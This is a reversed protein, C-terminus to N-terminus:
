ILKNPKLFDLFFIKRFEEFWFVVSAVAPLVIWSEWPLVTTHLLKGLYVDSFPLQLEAGQVFLLLLGMSFIVSLNIATNSFAGLQFVSNSSSRCNMVNFLQFIIFVAFAATRAQAFSSEAYGQWAQEDCAVNGYSDFYFVVEGNFPSIFENGDIYAFPKTCTDSTILPGDSVYFIMLTGIVMIAGLYFIIGMDKLDPLGEDTPRPPRDMVAGHRKEVGLAVAPPGDMLINIVLIQTATLPLEWQFVFTSIVILAVAAVNTSIQYRVFNRINNFIKRGEEVAKVINAFNDDQLVMDAADKAVDTGAIGMAIGINARTLAPADNVGDGTMAVVHGKSQLSSVIRMKEDPTVRSYINCNEVKSELEDDDMELLEKGSIIEHAEDCIALEIGIAKATTSQDGTIMKVQIGARKCIAIADYAENRPPDNIGVFGLLILDKEIEEVEDLDCGPPIKRAALTIVRMSQAACKRNAQIYIDLDSQEIPVVKNEVIKHTLLGEMMGGAGKVLLWDDGEWHHIVSMRKRTADFFYEFQRPNRVAHKGVDGVIKWGMVACASDTPNGIAGWYGNEDKFIRSNHCLGLCSTALRFDLRASLNTLGDEDIEGDSGVLGGTVPNFGSGSVDWSDGGLFFRRVTMQNKTLTGTKDTCIITTSGLTEVAKMKRVIAKHRAMNRMGLSLTIVLIIPLGEPVIAVFIAIAIMFQESAVDVLSESGDGLFAVVMKVTVLLVAVVLAVIGLFKGLSQLKVELPTKPVEASSIGSAIMGLETDMGTKVVVGIARGTSAVTGMFAMSFQDGLLSKSAVADPSKKVDLSEGTLSAEDTKFQYVELLRVDAPINLGESLKVIDGPVLDTTLLEIDVGNRIAVCSSIAMEKLAGMAQEAQEEQWYGFIANATLVLTIFIADGPQDPHLILAIVAATILLFILPDNFQGLFRLWKPSRPPEILENTGYKLRLELVENDSLGELSSNFNSLVEDGDMSFWNDTRIDRGL